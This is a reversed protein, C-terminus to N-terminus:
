QPGSPCCYIGVCYTNPKGTQPDIGFNCDTGVKFQWTDGVSDYVMGSSCAASVAIAGSGCLADVSVGPYAFVTADSALKQCQPAGSDTQQDVPVGDRNVVGPVMCGQLFLITFIPKIM